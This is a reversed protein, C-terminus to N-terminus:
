VEQKSKKFRLQQKTLLNITRLFLKQLCYGYNTLESTPLVKVVANMLALKM